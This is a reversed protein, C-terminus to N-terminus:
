GGLLLRAKLVSSGRPVHVAIVKQLTQGSAIVGLPVYSNEGSVTIHATAHAASTSTNSASLAASLTTAGTANVVADVAFGPCPAVVAADDRTLVIASSVLATITGDAVVEFDPTYATRCSTRHTLGGVSSTLFPIMLASALCLTWWPPRPLASIKPALKM